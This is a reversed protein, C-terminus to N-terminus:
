EIEGAEDLAQATLEILNRIVDNMHLDERQALKRWRDSITKKNIIKADHLALILEINMLADAVHLDRISENLPQM